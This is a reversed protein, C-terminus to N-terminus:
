HFFGFGARGAGPQSGLGCPPCDEVYLNPALPPRVFCKPMVYVGDENALSPEGSPTWPVGLVLWVGNGPACAHHSGGAPSQMVVRM